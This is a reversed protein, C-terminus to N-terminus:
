FNEKKFFIEGGRPRLVRTALRLLTTKGSGNPGIIGMFDGHNVDLSIGKIIDEKYYGGSVNSIKLLVEM